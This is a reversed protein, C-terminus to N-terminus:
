IVRCGRAAFAASFFWFITDDLKEPEKHLYSTTFFFGCIRLLLPAEPAFSFFIPCQKGSFWCFVGFGTFRKRHERLFVTFFGHDLAIPLVTAYSLRAL